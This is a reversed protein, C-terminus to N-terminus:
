LFLAQDTHMDKRMLWILREGKIPRFGIRFFFFIKGYTILEELYAM